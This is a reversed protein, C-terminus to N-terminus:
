KAKRLVGIGDRSGIIDYDYLDSPEIVQVGDEGEIYVSIQVM